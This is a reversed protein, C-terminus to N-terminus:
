RSTDGQQTDGSPPTSQEHAAILAHLEAEMQEKLRTHQAVLAPAVTHRLIQTGSAAIVEIGAGSDGVAVLRTYVSMGQVNEQNLILEGGHIDPEIHTGLCWPYTPCPNAPEVTPDSM